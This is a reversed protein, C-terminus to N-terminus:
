QALRPPSIVGWATQTTNGSNNSKASTNSVCGSSLTANITGDTASLVHMCAFGVITQPAGNNGTTPNNVVPVIAYECSHNGAASCNNISTYPDGNGGNNGQNGNGDGGGQNNGGDIRILGHTSYTAEKLSNLPMSFTSRYVPLAAYRPPILGSGQQNQNGQNGQNGQSNYDNGQVSISDETHLDQSNGNQTVNESLSFNNDSQSTMSTFQGTICNGNGNGNGNGQGQGAGNGSGDGQNGNGNNDSGQNQQHRDHNQQHQDIRIFGTTTHNVLLASENKSSLVTFDSRVLRPQANIQANHLSTYEGLNAPSHAFHPALLNNQSQNQKSQHDQNNSNEGGCTHSPGVQIPDSKPQNDTSNWYQRVACIPMAIPLKTGGAGLSSANQVIATATASVQMSSMGIIGGFFLNVQKTLSVKVAAENSPASPSLSQWYNSNVTLTDHTGIANNQNVTVYVPSGSNNTMMSFNPSTSGQTYLMGAGRLAGADVANQIDNRAVMVNGVDVAMAGAGMLASLSLAAAVSVAGRQQSFADHSRNNM